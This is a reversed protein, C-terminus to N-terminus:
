YAFPFWRGHKVETNELEALRDVFSPLKLSSSIEQELTGMSEDFKEIPENPLIPKKDHHSEKLFNSLDDNPISWDISSHSVKKRHHKGYVRDEEESGQTFVSCFFSTLTM